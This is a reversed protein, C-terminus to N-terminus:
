EDEVVKYKIQEATIRFCAYGVDPQGQTKPFRPATVCEELTEHIVNDVPEPLVASGALIFLMYGTVIM